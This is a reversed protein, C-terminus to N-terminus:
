GAVLARRARVGKEALEYGGGRRRVYAQIELRAVALSVQGMALGTAAGIASPALPVDDMVFLVKSEEETLSPPPEDPGEQGWVLDPSLEDFLDQVDTLVAAHAARILRNPAYAMPNRLSGPVAFVSRGADLAQRATILAGSKPGGEVVVVAESLGAIIRNRQPFHSPRGPTGPPHESLVTGGTEISRRLSENTAPYNLDLGTGVVAWTVGGARLAARHAAADIGLALGSVVVWGAEAIATSISTAM